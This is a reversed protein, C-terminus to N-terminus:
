RVSSSMVCTCWDGSPLVVNGRILVRSHVSIERSGRPPNSKTWYRGVGEHTLRAGHLFGRLDHLVEVAVRSLLQRRLGTLYLRERLEVVSDIRAVVERM